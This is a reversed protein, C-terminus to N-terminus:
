REEMYEAVVKGRTRDWRYGSVFLFIRQEEALNAYLEDTDRLSRQKVLAEQILYPLIVLRDYEEFSSFGLAKVVAEDNVRLVDNRYKRADTLSLPVTNKAHHVLYRRVLTTLITQKSSVASTTSRTFAADYQTQYELDSTRICGHSGCAIPIGYSVYLLILLVIVASLTTLIQIHRNM